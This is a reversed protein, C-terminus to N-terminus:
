PAGKVKQVHGSTLGVRPHSCATFRTDFSEKLFNQVGTDVGILGIDDLHSLEADNAHHREKQGKQPLRATDISQPPFKDM